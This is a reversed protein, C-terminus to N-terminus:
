YGVFIIPGTLTWFPSLSPCEWFLHVFTGLVGQSCLNCKPSSTLNMYFRKMPTLYVRHLLKWHIMQHNPNKSSLKFMDWVQDSFLFMCMRMLIRLGFLQLLYPKYSHELLFLYIVSASSPSEESPLILKRLPHVPLQSNWPVGYARLASRIRVYM